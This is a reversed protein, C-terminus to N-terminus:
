FIAFQLAFEERSVQIYFPIFKFLISHWIETTWFYYRESTLRLFERNWGEFKLGEFKIKNLNLPLFDQVYNISEVSEMALLEGFISWINRFYSLICLPENLLRVFTKSAHFIKRLILLCTRRLFFRWRLYKVPDQFYKQTFVDKQFYFTCLIGENKKRSVWSM